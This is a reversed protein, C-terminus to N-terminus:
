KRWPADAAGLSVLNAVLRVAGPVAFPLQRYWAYACYIYLGKGYPAVLWGGRQPAQGQDHTSLLPKYRQDWTTWFKSGRQEIWDDFDRVTIRNPWRFVPDDPDLIEVPANEESVEEARMTMSYPYPGYNHDYEQTNYQVVLVGGNKVYELLRANHTKLEPRAAYARIGLWIAPYRSLDGSAVAAADLLDVPVGLQRLGEPVEDGTGMVYGVRVGPAVKADVARVYQVAPEMLYATELGPQTIPTFTSRYERGDVTAVAEVLHDGEAATAAPILRFTVSTEEGQKEFRFPAMAPDSRWGEPLALRLTGQAEGYRHNRVSVTLSYERRGLPLAGFPAPMKVSIAPGVALARRHQVGLRDIFSTEVERELVADVGHAVYTIRAMLPPPPLPRGFWAPPEIRYLNERVSQRRWHAKTPLANTSVEVRFKGPGTRTVTWGYPAALEVGRLEADGRGRQYFTVTVHFTQGPTALAFTEYPRFAAFPGEPPQDPDVLAEAELGLSQALATEAQQAKESLGLRRAVRLAEALHPACAEPHALSFAKVAADVPKAFEASPAVELRELFSSEKEAMGVKSALLKYYTVSPGPRAIASGAGQTRQQRLGERAIQAYSRGLVPDYVGSDLRITWPENERRNDSYLKLPQWPPLGPFRAPDGAAEFALQALVGAAEHNGHGDRPTGQWRAILVHPKEMRILRVLDGLVQERDWNRFTEALNKSFGFDIFRTFRLRVGYYEAARLVEVTRLAGLADFFDGTVLNAGAEGRTLSALTVDVGQGRSLLTLMGGDEDDPHATIHMVRANTQLRKLSQWLGAAGRDEPLPDRAALPLAACLALAALRIM